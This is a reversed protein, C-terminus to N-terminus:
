KDPPGKIWINLTETQRDVCFQKRGDVIKRGKKPDNSMLFCVFKNTM